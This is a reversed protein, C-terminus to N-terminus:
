TQSRIMDVFIRFIEPDAWPKSIQDDNMEKLAEFPSKAATYGRAHTIADFYDCVRLFRSGLPIEDGKLGDPYGTGGWDEHHHRVIQIVVGNTALSLIKAGIVPHQQMLLREGPLFKGPQRRISEPIGVKGIDHLNTAYDLDHMLPDTPEIGYRLALRLTLESVRKSHEVGYSDFMGIIYQLLPLLSKTSM